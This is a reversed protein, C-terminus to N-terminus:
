RLTRIRFCWRCARRLMRMEGASATLLDVGNYRVEGATPEILRLLMRAVTSKGSGSEGVLGLTEGRRITFSVDDVVRVAGSKDAFEKVLGCVEVLIEGDKGMIRITADLFYGAM